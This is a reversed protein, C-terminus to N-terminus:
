RPYRKRMNKQYIIKRAKRIPDQERIKEYKIYHDRNKYYNLAVRKRTCIKCEGQVGYFDSKNKEKGCNKCIKM